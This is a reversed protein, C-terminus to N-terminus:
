KHKYMLYVNKVDKNLAKAIARFSLHEIDRLRKVKNALEVDRPRGKRLLILPEEVPKEGVCEVGTNTVDDPRIATDHKHYRLFARICQMKRVSTYPTNQRSIHIYYTEVDTITIETITKYTVFSIFERLIEKHDAAIHPASRAKYAIYEEVQMQLKTKISFFKFMYIEPKSLHTSILLTFTMGRWCTHLKCVLFSGSKLMLTLLVVAWPKLPLIM